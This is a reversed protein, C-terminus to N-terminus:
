LSIESLPPPRNYLNQGVFAATLVLEASPLRRYDTPWQLFAYRVVVPLWNATSMTLRQRGSESSSHKQIVTTKILSCANPSTYRTAVSTALSCVVIFVLLVGCVKRKPTDLNKLPLM